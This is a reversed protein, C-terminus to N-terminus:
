PAVATSAGADDPVAESPSAPSAAGPVIGRLIANPLRADDWELDSRGTRVIV